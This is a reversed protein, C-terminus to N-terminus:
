NSRTARAINLHILAAPDMDGSWGLQAYSWQEFRWLGDLSTGDPKTWTLRYYRHRKWSPSHGTMFNLEFPTPWSLGNRLTLSVRDGPEPVPEDGPGLPFVTDGKQISLRSRADRQIAAGPDIRLIAADARFAGDSFSLTKVPLSVAESQRLHDALISVSRGFALWLITLGAGGALWPILRRPM